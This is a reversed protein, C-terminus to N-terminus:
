YIVEVFVWFGLLVLQNKNLFTIPYSIPYSFIIENFLKMLNSIEDNLRIYLFIIEKATIVKNSKTEEQELLFGSSDLM